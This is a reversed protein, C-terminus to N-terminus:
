GCNECATPEVAADVAGMSVLEIALAHCGQVVIRFDNMGDLIQIAAEKKACRIDGRNHRHEITGSIAHLGSINLRRIRSPRPMKRYM